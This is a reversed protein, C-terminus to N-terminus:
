PTADTQTLTVAIDSLDLSLGQSANDVTGGFPFDVDVGVALRKGDDADTVTTVAAGDLTASVSTTVFSSLTGSGSGGTVGVSAQLNDGEAVLDYAGAYRLADGPVITVTGTVPSGNLTWAGAAPNTLALRGSNVTGGTVTGQANWYALTGGGGLLLLVGAAGALVGKITSKM